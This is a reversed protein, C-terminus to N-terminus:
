VMCCSWTSGNLDHYTDTDNCMLSVYWITFKLAVDSNRPGDVTFGIFIITTKTLIRKLNYDHMLKVSLCVFACDSLTSTNGYNASVKRCLDATTSHEIYWIFFRKQLLSAAHRRIFCEGDGNGSGRRTMSLFSRSPSMPLLLQLLLSPMAADDASVVSSSETFFCNFSIWSRRWVRTWLSSCRQSSSLSSSIFCSQISAAATTSRMQAIAMVKM